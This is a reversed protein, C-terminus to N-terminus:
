KVYGLARLDAASADAGEPPGSPRKNVDARWAKLMERMERAKGDEGMSSIEGPDRALDYYEGAGDLDDDYLILKLPWLVLADQRRPKYEPLALFKSGMFVARPTVSGDAAFLPKGEMVTPIPLRALTLISPALDLQSVPTEVRGPGKGPVHM